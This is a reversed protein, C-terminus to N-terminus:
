VVGKKGKSELIKKVDGIKELAVIEVGNLEICFAEELRTIFIMHNMSDWDELEILSKEDEYESDKMNFSDKLVQQLTM